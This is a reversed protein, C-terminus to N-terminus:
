TDSRAGLMAEIPFITAGEPATITPIDNFNGSHVSLDFVFVPAAGEADPDVMTMFEAMDWDMHIAIDHIYNDDLGITQLITLNINDFMPGLMGMVMDMEDGSMEEGSMSAAMEMQAEMMGMFMDSRFFAGYDFTFQFVAAAQGMVDTDALREVSLFENFASPDTFMGMYSEMASTDMSEMAGMMDMQGAALELAKALDIGVWGPPVGADPPLVAAISDLNIYGFGDVLRVSLSLSEPIPQEAAGAAM